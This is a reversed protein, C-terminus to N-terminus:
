GGGIEGFDEVAGLDLGDLRAFGDQGFAVEAVVNVHDADAGHDHFLLDAAFVDEEGVERGPGIDAFHGQDCAAWAGGGDLRRDLGFDDLEIAVGEGPQHGGLGGEEFAGAAVHGRPLVDVGEDFAALVAEGGDHVHIALRCFEQDIVADAFRGVDEEDVFMEADAAVIAFLRAGVAMFTQGAEIAFGPAGVGM